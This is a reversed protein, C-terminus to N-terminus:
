DARVPFERFEYIAPVAHQAALQIVQERRTNFFPDAAVLLAKAGMKSMARFADELEHESSANLVVAPRSLAQAASHVELLQADAGPTQPNVLVAITGSPVLEQLLGLRKAELDNTLIFVGTANGGPRNLSAVLGLQVPDSAASFVIPIQTTAAKAALASTGGGTAVIVAVQQRVLDRALEPLRDNRGEAWRYEVALNQAEIYGAEKLGDRFAAMPRAIPDPSINSLFGIVPLAARQARAAVPWAAAAGGLLSIFERRRM